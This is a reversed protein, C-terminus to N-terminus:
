PITSANFPIKYVDSQSRRPAPIQSYFQDNLRQNRTGWIKVPTQRSKTKLERMDLPASAMASPNNVTQKGSAACCALCERGTCSRTAPDGTVDSSVTELRLM